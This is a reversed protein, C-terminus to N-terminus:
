DFKQEVCDWGDVLEVEDNGEIDPLASVKVIGEDKILKPKNWIGLCLLVCTLQASLCSCTHSLILHSHSFSQEVDVFKAPISSYDLAM